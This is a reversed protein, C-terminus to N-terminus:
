NPREGYIEVEDLHLYNKEALQIRIMRTVVGSLDVVAPNGDIGGFKKGNQSFLKVWEDGENSCYLEFSYARERGSDLRNYIVVKNVTFEEELDIQLWPSDELKTHNSATGDRVGNTVNEAVFGEGFISSQTVMKGAALNEGEVELFEPAATWSFIASNKVFLANGWHKSSININKLSFGFKALFDSIEPWTCGGEYLPIESVEVFVAELEELLCESGELVMLDAGQTDVVLVNFEENPFEKSILTDLKTTEMEETKIYTIEPYLLSHNGLGLISSSQGGNSAVNFSIKEGDKNSCVAKIAKHGPEQEVLDKLALFAEEIPEIYIVLDSTSDRYNGFEQGYNAGVHIIGRPAIGFRPLFDTVDM